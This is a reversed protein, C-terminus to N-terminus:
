IGRLNPRLGCMWRTPQSWIERELLNSELLGNARSLQESALILEFNGGGLGGLEEPLYVGFLDAKRLEEVVPWPFEETADYHERVPKIKKEALEHALEVISQQLETLQYDM